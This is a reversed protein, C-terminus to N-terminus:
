GRAPSPESSARVRQRTLVVRLMQPVQCSGAKRCISARVDPHRMRRLRGLTAPSASLRYVHTEGGRVDFRRRLALRKARITVVGRCRGAGFCSLALEVRRGGHWRLTSDM